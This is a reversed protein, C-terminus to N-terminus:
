LFASGMRHRRVWRGLVQLTWYRSPHQGQSFRDRVVQIAVPDLGAEPGEIMAPLTHQLWRQYPLGFGRKPRDWVQRPLNPGVADLLLPKNRRPDVKFASPLPVVVEALDSDVFPARLEVAHSMSM